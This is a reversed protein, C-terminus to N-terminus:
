EKASFDYGKIRSEYSSWGEANKYAQVSETPVYIVMSEHAYDFVGCDYYDAYDFVPPTKSKCYVSRLNSNGRFAEVGIMKVSEPVAISQLDCDSFAREGIETVSNPISVSQLSECGDFVQEEIKTVLNPISVSHLQYCDRFAARGIKTVSNPISISRLNHCVFFAGEGIETVSNPISVSQLDYCEDFAWDGISQVGYPLRVSLLDEEATFQYIERVSAPFTVVCYSKDKVYHSIVSSYWDAWSFDLLQGLPTTYYIENAAPEPLGTPDQQGTPENPDGPEDFNGNNCGVLVIGLLSMMFTIKKM